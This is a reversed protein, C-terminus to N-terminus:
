LSPLRMANGTEISVIINVYDGLAGNENVWSFSWSPVQNDKNGYLIFKGEQLYYPSIDMKQKKIYGEALGLARQMTLKPRYGKAVPLESVQPHTISKEPSTPEPKPQQDTQALTVTSFLVTMLVTLVCKM